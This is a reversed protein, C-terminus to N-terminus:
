FAKGISIRFAIADIDADIKNKVGDSDATGNISVDDYDTYTLETRFFTGNANDRNMGLGILMGTVDENGYVSGTALTETTDITAMAVGGKLYAGSDGLSKSLYLTTHSTLEASVKNDGATDSADDTDTDTRANTGSGLEAEVPMFDLGIALGNDNAAEIFISPVVVTEDHTKSTKTGSSKMTESGDSSFQTFAASVGIRKEAANVNNVNAFTLLLISTAIIVKKKM